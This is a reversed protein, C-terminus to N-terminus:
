QVLRIARAVGDDGLIIDAKITEGYRDLNVPLGMTALRDRAVEVRLMVASDAATADNLYTLPMFGTTVETNSAVENDINVSARDQSRVANRNRKVPTTTVTPPVPATTNAAVTGEGPKAIVPSAVPAPAVVPAVAPISAQPAANSQKLWGRLPIILGWAVIVAAAVALAWYPKRSRQPFAIVEALPASPVAVPASHQAAFAAMLDAKLRMPAQVQREHRGLEVLEYSLLRENALRASCRPCEGTHALGTERKTGDWLRGGALDNVITEFEQCNM